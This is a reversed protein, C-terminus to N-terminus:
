SRERYCNILVRFSTLVALSFVSLVKKMVFLFTIKLHKREQNVSCSDLFTNTQRHFAKFSVDPTRNVTANNPLQLFTLYLTRM